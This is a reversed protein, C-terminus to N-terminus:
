TRVMTSPMSHRLSALHRAQEAPVARSFLYGQGHACDLSRLHRLQEATEIGEAVVGKDLSKALSVIARVIACDERRLPLGSVFARDIKLSDIPFRHLYALSSYGAGFDDLHVKVGHRRLAALMEIATDANEILATETLELVLSRPDMGTQRLIRDVIEVFEPQRLQHSSVNVSMSLSSEGGANLQRGFRCATQLVQTGMPTIIGTDEAEAIFDGPLVLGETGPRKWRVLAEFGELSGNGLHLIPQYHVIFEGRDIARRLGTELELRSLAWCHLDEDFVEFRAKGLRKARYMATDADRLLDEPKGYSGDGHCIGISVSTFVEQGGVVVPVGLADHIRKAAAEAGQEPDIDELLLAFEDGGLRAVTDSPRVCQRLRRSVAILLQDGVLHGLSDNIVKFRDLDLFLVAFAAGDQRQSRRIAQALRDLLLTRNPLGTLDDHLAEHLLRAAAERRRTVDSLSGAMRTQGDRRVARGRALMWRWHDSETRMRHEHEVHPSLGGLHERIAALLSDLDDPHVRAFWDQASSIRLDDPLGLMNRWRSSAVFSDEEVHWDWIGDRAGDLARAYRDRSRELERVLRGRELAYRIARRVVQADMNRKILYDQAGGAVAQLAVNELEMGSQVVIPVGGAAAFAAEFTSLGQSDPVHLDLLAVDFGGGELHAVADALLTVHTVSLEEGELWGVLREAEAPSDELILVKLM